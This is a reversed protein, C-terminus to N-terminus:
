AHRARKGRKRARRVGNTARRDQTSRVQVQGDVVRYDSIHVLGCDCCQERFARKRVAIWEGDTVQYYERAM